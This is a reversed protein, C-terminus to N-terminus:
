QQYFHTIVPRELSANSDSVPNDVVPHPGPHIYARVFRNEIGRDVPAAPYYPAPSNFPNQLDQIPVKWELWGNGAAAYGLSPAYAAIQKGNRDSVQITWGSDDWKACSVIIDGPTHLQTLYQQLEVIYLCNMRPGDNHTTMQVYLFSEDHALYVHALDTGSVAAPYYPDVDGVPDTVAASIGDWENGPLDCSSGPPCYRITITKSPVRVEALPHLTVPELKNNKWKMLLAFRQDNAIVNEFLVQDATLYPLSRSVSFDLIMNAFDPKPSGRQGAAGVAVLLSVAVLMSLCLLRKM